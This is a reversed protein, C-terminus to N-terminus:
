DRSLFNKRVRLFYIFYLIYYLIFIFVERTMKLDLSHVQMERQQIMFRKATNSMTLKSRDLLRCKLQADCIVRQGLLIGM